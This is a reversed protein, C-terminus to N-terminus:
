KFMLLMQQHSGAFVCSSIDPAPNRCSGRFPLLALKLHEPMKMDVNLCVTQLHFCNLVETYRLVARGLPPRRHSLPVVCFGWSPLFVVCSYCSFTQLCWPERWTVLILCQPTKKGVFIDWSFCSQSSWPDSSGGSYQEPRIWLVHFVHQFDNSGAGYM